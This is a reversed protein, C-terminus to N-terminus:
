QFVVDIPMGPKLNGDPDSVSLEIAFVTTQRDEKTQVNRPTYEARDAIRTVIGSFTKEPFSDAFLTATDGLKIQGYRDEPIYVTVTLNDLQGITMAAQGPQIVEGPEISRTMVVGGVMSKVDLRDIQVQIAELNSRALAVQAQAINIEEQTPTEAKALALQAKANEVRANALAVDDPDPGDKYMEYDQYAKAIQAELLAIDSKQPGDKIREWEREAEFLQAKAVVLDAEAVAIDAPSGTGRLANLKRVAADYVQQAAALKAQYNARQLNDEPKDDYPKYDEEADDLVDRALVVQAEAAAIDADDATSGVSSLRREANEIAKEADAIAKLALAQLYDPNHLNDLERELNEAMELAQAALLDTDEYLQNLDYESSALALEAASVGANKQEKTLGAVIWDYNAEAVNLASEAQHLQSLLLEDGIQFLPEGPKVQDGESVWVTTVRGGIEPAIVIEIAEVVGSAQLGNKSGADELMIDCATTVILLVLVLTLRFIRRLLNMSVEM